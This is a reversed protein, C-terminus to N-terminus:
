VRPILVLADLNMISSISSSHSLPSSKSKTWRRLMIGMRLDGTVSRLCIYAYCVEGGKGELVYVSMSKLLMFGPAQTSSWSTSPCTWESSSVIGSSQGRLRKVSIM